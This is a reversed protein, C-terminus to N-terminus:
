VANLWCIIEERLSDSAADYEKPYQRGEHFLWKYKTRFPLLMHSGYRYNLHKYPYAFDHEKLRKMMNECSQKGPWISDHESSVLLVRGCIKECPILSSEDANRHAAEYVESFSLERHKLSTLIAKGSKARTYAYPLEKGRWTWSSCNLWSIGPGIGMNIRCSPAMAIVGSIEPLLSASVLSLEAGKSIGIAVIKRFGKNQLYRVANEVYEIPVKACTKPADPVGYYGVALATYGLGAFLEAEDGTLRYPVGAGGLILLVMKPRVCIGPMYLSGHFGNKAITFQKIKM